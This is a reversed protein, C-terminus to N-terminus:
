KSAPGKKKRQAHHRELYDRVGRRAHPTARTWLEAIDHAKRQLVTKTTRAPPDNILATVSTGLFEAIAVLDDVDAIVSGDALYKSVWSQSKGLRSALQRQNPRAARLQQRIRADMPGM